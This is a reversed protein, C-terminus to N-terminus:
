NGETEQESGEAPAQPVAPVSGEEAPATIEPAQPVTPDAVPAQPVTPVSGMIGMDQQMQGLSANRTAFWAMALTIAFFTIALWKTAKTLFSASGRAGFVTSSAGGGFGSGAAAGTGRQMLILVVMSIAVIVFLINLVYLLM